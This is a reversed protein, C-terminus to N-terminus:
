QLFHRRVFEAAESEPVCPACFTGRGNIPGEYHWMFIRPRGGDGDHVLLVDGQPVIKWIMGDPLEVSFGQRNGGLLRLRVSRGDAPTYFIDQGDPGSWFRLIAAPHNGDMRGAAAFNAVRNQSDTAAAPQESTALAPACLAAIICGILTAKGQRCTM